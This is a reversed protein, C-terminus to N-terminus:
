WRDARAAQEPVHAEPRAPAAPAPVPIIGAVRTGVGAESEVTVVGGVAALRDRLNTLGSGWAQARPTFGAGDDRVEFGLVGTDSLSIWVGTAGAAHKAANQLAEVCAYYITSEVEPAYRGVGDSDVRARLPAAFAAARLAEVLGRDALLSPYIGRAISRVEDITVEVEDGLRELADATSASRGRQRESELALYARVAVLRQQAGDHLDREIRRRAQYGASVIRARSRSLEDLSEHLEGILRNNHLVALAYTAVAQVIGPEMVLAAEHDIAAVRGSARVETVIRGTGPRLAAVPRDTDDLWQGPEGPTEYAIRLAPDELAEAMEARLETASAGARLRLTLRELSTAVYLRASVLGGAFGVAILPLSLLYIWGIADHAPGIAGRRRAADYAGIAVVRFGATALVPALTRRGLPAASRTRRALMVVVALYVAVTLVERVPRVIDGAWWPETGAVMFANSPCHAGCMGWPSPEPFHEVFFITPLYLVSSLLVTARFVARDARTPLRGFPFALLLYVLGPEVLWVVTRGTSYALNDSSVALTTVSMVVATALLLLAFRDRPRRRLVAIGVGGPVAVLLGFVVASALRDDAPAEALVFGVTAVCLALTGIAAALLLPRRNAAGGDGPTDHARAVL